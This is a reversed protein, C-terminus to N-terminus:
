QIGAHSQPNEGNTNIKTRHSFFWQLSRFGAYPFQANGYQEIIIFNHIELKRAFDYFKEQM